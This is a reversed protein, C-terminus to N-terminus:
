EGRPATKLGAIALFNGFIAASDAHRRDAFEPHFQVGYLPRERHRIAQVCADNDALLRFDGPVDSIKMHHWNYVVPPATLGDFLPDDARLRLPAYGREEFGMEVIDSGFAMAMFQFGGCIAFVPLDTCRLFGFLPEMEVFRYSSLEQHYGTLVVAGPAHRLLTGASAERFPVVALNVGAHGAIFHGVSRWLQPPADDSGMEVVVITPRGNVHAPTRWCVSKIIRAPMRQLFAEAIFFASRIPSPTM